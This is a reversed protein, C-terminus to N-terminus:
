IPLSGILQKLLPARWHWGGRPTRPPALHVEVRHPWQALELLGIHGPTGNSQPSTTQFSFKIACQKPLQNPALWILPFLLFNPSQGRQGWSDSGKSIQEHNPSGPAM